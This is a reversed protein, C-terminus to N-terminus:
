VRRLPQVHGCARMCAHQLCYNNTFRGLPAQAVTWARSRETLHAPDHVGKLPTALPHLVEVDQAPVVRYGIRGDEDPLVSEVVTSPAFPELRQLTGVVTTTVPHGAWAALANGAKSGSLWCTYKHVGISLLLPCLPRPLPPLRGQACRWRKEHKVISSKWECRGELLLPQQCVSLRSNM